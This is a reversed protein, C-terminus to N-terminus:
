PVDALAFVIGRCYKGGDEMITFTSHPITTRYIWLFGEEDWVAEVVAGKAIIADREKIWYPCDDDDCKTTALGEKTLLATSGGYCGVEDSVAGRLEMLDDSAGFVVVLGAEKVQKEFGVPIEQGYERGDLRTAVDEPRM